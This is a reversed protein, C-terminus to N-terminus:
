STAVIFPLLLSRSHAGAHDTAVAQCSCCSEAGDEENEIREKREEVCDSKAKKTYMM